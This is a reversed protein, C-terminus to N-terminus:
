KLTATQALRQIALAALGGGPTKSSPVGNTNEAEDIQAFAAHKGKKEINTGGSKKKVKYLQVYLTTDPRRCHGPFIELRGKCLGNEPWSTLKKANQM